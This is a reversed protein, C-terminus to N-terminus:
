DLTFDFDGANVAFTDGALVTKNAVAAGFAIRVPTGASDWIEGGVVTCAPMNNFTITSGTNTNAGSAAASLTISQRAYSGGTVETGASTKSGNATMLALKMPATPRTPTGVGFLWDLALNDATYTLNSAM